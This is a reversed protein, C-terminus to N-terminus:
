TCLCAWKRFTGAACTIRGKSLSQLYLWTVSLSISSTSSTPLSNYSRAYVITCNIVLIAYKYIIYIISIVTYKNINTYMWLKNYITHVRHETRCANNPRFYICIDTTCSKITYRKGKSNKTLSSNERATNLLISNCYASRNNETHLQNPNPGHNMILLSSLSHRTTSYPFQRLFQITEPQTDSMNTYWHKLSAYQDIM